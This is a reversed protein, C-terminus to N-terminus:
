RSPTGGRPRSVSADVSMLAKFYPEIIETPFRTFQRNEFSLILGKSAARVKAVEYLADERTDGFAEHNPTYIDCRESHGSIIEQNLTIRPHLGPPNKVPIPKYEGLAIVDDDLMCIRRAAVNGDYGFVELKARTGAVDLRFESYLNELFELVRLLQGFGQTYNPHCIFMEVHAQNRLLELLLGKCWGGSYHVITAKRTVSRKALQRLWDYADVSNAWEGEPPRLGRSLAKNSWNRTHTGKRKADREALVKRAAELVQERKRAQPRGGKVVNETYWEPDVGFTGYRDKPEVHFWAPKIVEKETDTLPRMAQDPDRQPTPM